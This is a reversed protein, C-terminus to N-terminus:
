TGSPLSSSTSPVVVLRERDGIGGCVRCDDYEAPRDGDVAPGGLLGGLRAGLRPGKDGSDGILATLATLLILAMLPTLPLLAILPILPGGLRGADLSM